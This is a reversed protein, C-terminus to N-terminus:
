NVTRKELLNSFLGESSSMKTIEPNKIERGPLIRSECAYFADNTEISFTVAEFSRPHDSVNKYKHRNKMFDEADDGSLTWGEIIMVVCDADNEKCIRRLERASFDKSPPSTTDMIVPVWQEGSFVFAVPALMPSEKLNQKVAPLFREIIKQIKYPAPPVVKSPDIDDMIKKLTESIHTPGDKKDM